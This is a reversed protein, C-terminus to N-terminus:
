TRPSATDNEYKALNLVFSGLKELTYEAAEHDTKGERKAIAYWIDCFILVMGQLEEDKFEVCAKVEKLTLEKM